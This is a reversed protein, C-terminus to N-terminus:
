AGDSSPVAHLRRPIQSGLTASPLASVPVTRWGVPDFFGLRRLSPCDVKVYMAAPRLSSPLPLVLQIRTRLVQGFGEALPEQTSGTLIPVPGTAGPVDVRWREMAGHETQIAIAINRRGLSPWGTKGLTLVLRGRRIRCMRIAHGQDRIGSGVLPLFPEQAAAFRLLSRGRLPLQTRHTLIARRKRELESETLRLAIPMSHRAPRRADHVLYHLRVPELGDLSARALASTTLVGLAGHDPHRDAPHPEILISPEFGTLEQVLDNILPEPETMLLDFLGQDPYGLFRACEKDLGLCSLATVAEARRRSGWRLRDAPSLRWRREVARQAWPNNEGDTLFLVRTRGGVSRARQLVGATALSEDDPHPALVMVRDTPRIEFSDM